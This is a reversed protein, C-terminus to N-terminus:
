KSVKKLHKKAMKIITNEVAYIFKHEKVNTVRFGKLRLVTVWLHLLEHLVTAAYEAVTDNLKQSITIVAYNHGRLLFNGYAKNKCAKVDKLNILLTGGMRPWMELM